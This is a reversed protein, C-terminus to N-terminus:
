GFPMLWFAGEYAVPTDLDINSNNLFALACAAILPSKSDRLAFVFKAEPFQSFRFGRSTATNTQERLNNALYNLHDENDQHQRSEHIFSNFNTYLNNFPIWVQSLYSDQGTVKELWAWAAKERKVFAELEELSSFEIETGSFDLTLPTEIPPEIPTEETM